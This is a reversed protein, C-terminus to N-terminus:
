IWVSGPNPPFNLGLSGAGPELDRLKFGHQFTFSYLSPGKRLSTQPQEQVEEEKRVVTASVKIIQTVTFPNPTGETLRPTEGAQRGRRPEGPSATTVLARCTPFLLPPVRQEGPQGCEGRRERRVNRYTHQNQEM